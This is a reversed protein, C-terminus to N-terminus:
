QTNAGHIVGVVLAPLQTQDEDRTVRRILFPKNGVRRLGEEYAERETTFAGLLEEGSILVFAGEHHKLLEEKESEFYKLERRLPTGTVM